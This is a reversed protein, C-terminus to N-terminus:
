YKGIKIFNELSKTMGPTKGEDKMCDNDFIVDFAEPTLSGDGSGGSLLPENLHTKSM